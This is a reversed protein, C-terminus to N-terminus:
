LVVELVEDEFGLDPVEFHLRTNVPRAFHTAPLEALRAALKETLEALRAALKETLVVLRAALKGPKVVPKVTQTEPWGVLM